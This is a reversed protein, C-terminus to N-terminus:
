RDDVAYLASLGRWYGRYDMGCGFLYRDDCEIGSFDAAAIGPRPVDKVVLVVTLVRAAGAAELRQRVAALTVGHDLVDDVVVVTRGACALMPEVLWELAGGNLAHGYRRVQIRDLEYAFDFRACLGAATFLGGLLVPMVIPAQGAVAQGIGAALRDLAGQIDGAPRVLDASRRVRLADALRADADNGSFEPAGSM